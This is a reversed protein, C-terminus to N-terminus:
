WPYISKPEYITRGKSAMVDVRWVLPSGSPCYHARLVLTFQDLIVASPLDTKLRLSSSLLSRVAM